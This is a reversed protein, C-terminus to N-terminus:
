LLFPHDFRRIVPIHISKMVLSNDINNFYIGLWNIDALCFLFSTDAQVIHFKIHRIFTQIIVSGISSIHGIGFHIHIAGAKTINITTNKIDRTYAMCQRYGVTFHQSASTDIM